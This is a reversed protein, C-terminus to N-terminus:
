KGSKVKKREAEIKRRKKDKIRDEERRIEEEDELRALKAARAEERAMEFGSAEMDSDDDSIDVPEPGKRKFMARIEARYDFQEPKEADDSSVVFSDQSESSERRRKRKIPEPTQTTPPVRSKEKPYDKGKERRLDTQIQKTTRLDRKPGQSFPVYSDRLHSKPDPGTSKVTLKSSNSKPHTPLKKVNPRPSISRSTSPISREVSAKRPRSSGPKLAVPQPPLPQKQTRKVPPTTSERPKEASRPKEAPRAQLKVKPGVKFTSSDVKSAEKLLKKFSMGAM